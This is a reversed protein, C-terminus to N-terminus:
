NNDNSGYEQAVVSHLTINGTNLINQLMQNVREANVANIAESRKSYFDRQSIFRYKLMEKWYDFSNDQQFTTRGILNKKVSAVENATVGREALDMIIKAFRDELYNSDFNNYTSFTFELMVVEKPYRYFMMGSNIIIGDMSLKRGLHRQIIKSVVEALAREDINMNYPFTLKCSHLARPFEMPMVETGVKDYTAISINSSENKRKLVRETPMSAIYKRVNKFLDFEPIDGVFIFSFEAPNSYLTNIFNIASYYDLQQLLTTDEFHHNSEGAIINKAMARHFRVSPSNGVFPACGSKMEYYKAYATDDPACERFYLQLMKMFEEIYDKHFRGVLKTEGLSIERRLTFFSGRQIEEIESYNYGGTLNIRAIDNIYEGLVQHDEESLSIGGRSVAEFEIWDPQQGMKKYAVNVGNRLRRSHLDESSYALYQTFEKFDKSWQSVKKPPLHYYGLLSDVEFPPLNPTVIYELSDTPLPSVCTILANESDMLLLRMFSDVDEKTIKQQLVDIYSKYLEVGNMSYGSIFNNFCLTFYFSNDLISRRDYLLQLQKMYNENAREYEQPYAGDRVLRGLQSIIFTYAKRYDQPACEIDVSVSNLGIYSDKVVQLSQPHFSENYIERSLRQSIIDRTVESMYEYVYPVATNRLVQNHETTFFKLSIDAATAEKDEFYFIGKNKLQPMPPYTVSSPITSKPLTQFLAKLRTEVAAVDIDGSIVIAQLEPRCYKSYFDRVDEPTYSDIQRFIEDAPLYAYDSGAYLKRRLSDEVRKELNQSASFVNRLFSKGRTVSNEDISVSSAVNCLALLMSDVIMDNKKLPVNRCLFTMSKDQIRVSLDDKFDLGMNDIFTFIEGDPFNRTDTLAMSNMLYVMGMNTSDQLAMGMKQILAFDAYGKITPNKILYYTLGNEMKRKIIRSDDGLSGVMQGMLVNLSFLLSISMLLIRKM